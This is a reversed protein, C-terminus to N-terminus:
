WERWPKMTTYGVGLSTSWLVTHSLTSDYVVTSYTLTNLRSRLATTQQPLHQHLLLPQRTPVLEGLPTSVSHHLLLLSRRDEGLEQVAHPLDGQLEGGGELEVFVKEDSEVVM